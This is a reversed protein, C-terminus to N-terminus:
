PSRGLLGRTPTEVGEIVTDVSNVDQHLRPFPDSGITSGGPNVTDAQLRHLNIPDLAHQILQSM